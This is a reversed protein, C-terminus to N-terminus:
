FTVPQSEILITYIFCEYWVKCMFKEQLKKFNDQLDPLAAKLKAVAKEDPVPM